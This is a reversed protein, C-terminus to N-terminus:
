DETSTETPSKEEIHSNEIILNYMKDEKIRYKIDEILNQKKYYARIQETSQPSGSAIKEFEASLDSETIIINEKKAIEEFLFFLKVNTIAQSTFQDDNETIYKGINEKGMGALRMNADNLLRKKQELVICEPVEFENIRVLETAIDQKLKFNISRERFLM